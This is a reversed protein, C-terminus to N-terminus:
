ACAILGTGAGAGAADFAGAAGGGTAGGAPGDAVPADVGGTGGEDVAAGAGAVGGGVSTGGTVYAGMGGGGGDVSGGGAPVGEGAIGEVFEDHFGLPEVLKVPNKAAATAAHRESLPNLLLIALLLLPHQM